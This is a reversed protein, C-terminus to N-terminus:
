IAELTIKYIKMSNTFVEEEIIKFDLMSKNQDYDRYKELFYFTDVGAQWSMRLCDTCPSLTQVFFANMSSKGKRACHLIANAEAHLMYPYKEPRTTPLHTDTGGRRFGNYGSTITENDLKDLLLAGVKTQEDKSRTAIELAEKM